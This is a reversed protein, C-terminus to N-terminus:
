PTRPPFDRGGQRLELYRGIRYLNYLFVSPSQGCLSRRLLPRALSFATAVAGRLHLRALRDSASILGSYGRIKEEFLSLTQLGEDTKELFLANPEFDDVLVPNDTHRVGIGREALAKGFLVDEHGYRRVCEDFPVAEMVDRRAMFNTTRFSQYPAQSRREASFKELCTAEYRYRLNHRAMEPSAPLAVGGYVVRCEADQERLYSLLFDDRLPLVDSDLYLLFAHRAERCLLNRIAARGVNQELEVLRCGAMRSLARNAEKAARDTSADDAVVVEFRGGDLGCAHAQAAIQEVLPVCVHNFVPIVVSLEASAPAINTLSDM